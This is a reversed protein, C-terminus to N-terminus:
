DTSKTWTRAPRERRGPERDVLDHGEMTRGRVVVVLHPPIHVNGAFM